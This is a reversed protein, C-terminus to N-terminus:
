FQFFKLRSLLVAEFTDLFYYISKTTFKDLIFRLLVGFYWIKLVIYNINWFFYSFWGKIESELILLARILLYWISIKKPPSICWLSYGVIKNIWCACCSLYFNFLNNIITFIKGRRSPYISGVGINSRSSLRQKNHRLILLKKDRFLM